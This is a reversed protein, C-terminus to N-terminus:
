TYTQDSYTGRCVLTLMAARLMQSAWLFATVESKFYIEM